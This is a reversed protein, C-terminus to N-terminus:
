VPAPLADGPWNLVKASRVAAELIFRHDPDAPDYGTLTKIRELRYTVTRVFV